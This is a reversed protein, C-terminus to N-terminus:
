IDSQKSDENRNEDIGGTYIIENKQLQDAIIFVLLDGLYNEFEKQDYVMPNEHVDYEFHMKCTDDQENFDVKGYSFIIGEYPGSILKLAVTGTKRNEVAIFPPSALHDSM